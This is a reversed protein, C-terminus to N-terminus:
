IRSTGRLANARCHQESAWFQEEPILTQKRIGTDSFDEAVQDPDSVVSCSVIGDLDLCSGAYHAGGPNTGGKGVQNRSSFTVVKYYKDSGQANTVRYM